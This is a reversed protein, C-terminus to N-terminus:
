LLKFSLVCAFYGVTCLPHIFGVSNCKCCSWVEISEYYSRM